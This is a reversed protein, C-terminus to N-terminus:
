PWLDSIRKVPCIICPAAPYNGSAAQALLSETTSDSQAWIEFATPQTVSVLFPVTVVRVTNNQGRVPTCSNPINTDNSRFWYRVYNNGGFSMVVSPTFEYQGSNTVWMKSLLGNTGAKLAIGQSNDFDVSNFTVPYATNALTLPINTSCSFQANPNVAQDKSVFWWAEGDSMVNLPTIGIQKHSLSVGDRITQAGTANTLIFSGWGNTSAFRYVINPVNAANPLTIVQNTGNCLYAQLNTTCTFNTTFSTKVMQKLGNTAFLNGATSIGTSDVIIYNTNFFLNTGRFETKGSDFLQLTRRNPVSNYLGFASGDYFFTGRESGGFKWQFQALTVGDVTIQSQGSNQKFYGDGLVSLAVASEAAGGVRIKTSYNTGITKLWGTNTFNGFSVDAGNTVIAGPAVISAIPINTLGSGDGYFDTGNFGAKISGSGASNTFVLAGNMIQSGNVVLSGRIFADAKTVLSTGNGSFFFADDVWWGYYTAGIAGDGFWLAKPGYQSHAGQGTQQMQINPRVPSAVYLGYGDLVTQAASWGAITNSVTVNTVVINAISNTVVDPIILPGSMTDGAKKVYLPSLPLTALANSTVWVLNSAYATSPVGLYNRDTEASPQRLFGQNFYSITQASVSLCLALLVIVPRM